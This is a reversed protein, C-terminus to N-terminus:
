IGVNKRNYWRMQMGYIVSPAGFRSGAGGAGTSGRVTQSLFGVSTGNPNLTSKHTEYQGPAARQGDACPMVGSFKDNFRDFTSNFNSTQGSSPVYSCM